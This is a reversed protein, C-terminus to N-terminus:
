EEFLKAQEGTGNTRKEPKEKGELEDWNVLTIAPPVVRTFHTRKVAEFGRNGRAAIERSGYFEMQREGSTEVVLADNQNRLLVGGLCADSDKLKIGIVGKGVGALVPVEELLFHLVHGKQSALMVSKEDRVLQVMVVKDGEALKIVQRGKVTSAPRFSALPLRLVMGSATAVFLHPGPPAGNKTQEDAPTFRPDTALASVVKAGEHLKFFKSIPDGYGSSAPVENMRMTYGVGEDSFFIVHDLTNGPVVAQIADGERVRTTELSQLRGVRKLWGDRTLIVNTNERVIYAEENFEQLEEESVIRTRRRDGHKEVVDNLETKVVNWLKAESRLLAELDAAQKKKEKLEDLIKKIELQAIKYLLMELIAECQEADLKFTATLKEAADAKGQSSRILTLAQDLANFIIRFGELVHVRKRIQALEYEYRRKVTKLRFDLFNRLIPLLGVRQPRVRGDAAPVLCTMNYAFNEQMATHKYLYAMVLEPDTDQKIELVIRLGEKENSENTVNLLQPLEKNAIIEGIKEELAGKNVGYPISTAVIQQKRGAEELKWEAQVKISGSGEEYIKRLTKRDALVRGGLPFDPGKVKELLQATTAEPNEILLIAARVVEGLNHPPINTAMGVAIGSMGNVLLHPFRAPLVVPEQKSGDFTPRYDVTQQRLERMLEEAIAMLKCETYRYAAANHGDVSGFNGEGFVLPYRLSFPQAMRVLADYIAMDGHPHYSGMVDGVVKACKIPRENFHLHNDHFMNYLIRRQVPKLGDRVDPLARAMIVSLAYNLYRRRTEDSLSVQDIKEAM